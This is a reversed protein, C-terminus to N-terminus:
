KAVEVVRRDETIAFYDPDTHPPQFAEQLGFWRAVIIDMAHAREVNWRDALADLRELQNNPLVHRGRFAEYGLESYTRRPM